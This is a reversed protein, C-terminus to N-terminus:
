KKVCYFSMLQFLYSKILLVKLLRAKEYIEKDSQGKLSSSAALFVYKFEKPNIPDNWFALWTVMNDHRIEKWRCLEFLQSTFKNFSFM